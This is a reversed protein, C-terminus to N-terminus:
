KLGLRHTLNLSNSMFSILPIALVVYSILSQPRSDCGPELPMIKAAASFKIEPLVVRQFLIGYYLSRQHPFDKKKPFIALKCDKHSLFPITVRYISPKGHTRHKNWYSM